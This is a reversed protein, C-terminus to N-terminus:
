CRRAFEMPDNDTLIHGYLPAPLWQGGGKDSLYFDEKCVTEGPMLRRVKIRTAASAVGPYITFPHSM